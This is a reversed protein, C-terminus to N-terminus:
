VCTGSPSIFAFAYSLVNLRTAPIQKVTYGRAYRSWNTFFAGRVSEPGQAPPGAAAASAFALAVVLAGAGIWRRM